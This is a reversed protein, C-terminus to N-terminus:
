CFGCTKKCNKKMKKKKKMCKKVKKECKKKRWKGKKDSCAKSDFNEGPCRVYDSGCYSGDGRCIGRRSSGSGEFKLCTSFLTAGDLLIDCSTCM